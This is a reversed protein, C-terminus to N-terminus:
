WIGENNAEKVDLQKARNMSNTGPFFPRDSTGHRAKSDGKKNQVQRSSTETNNNIQKEPIGTLM